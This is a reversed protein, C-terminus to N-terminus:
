QAAHTRFLAQGGKQQVKHLAQMGPAELLGFQHQAHGTLLDAAVQAELEFSDATGEGLENVLVDDLDFLPM